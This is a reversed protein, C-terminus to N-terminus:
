MVHPPVRVHVILTAGWHYSACADYTIMNLYTVERGPCALEPGQSVHMCHMLTPHEWPAPHPTHQPLPAVPTIFVSAAREAGVGSEVYGESGENGMEPNASLATTIQLPM